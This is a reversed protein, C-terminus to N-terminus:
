PVGMIAVMKWKTKGEGTNMNPVMEGEEGRALGGCKGDGREERGKARRGTRRKPRGAENTLREVAEEGRSNESQDAEVEGRRGLYNTNKNNEGRKENESIRITGEYECM